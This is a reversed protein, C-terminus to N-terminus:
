ECSTSFKDTLIEANQLEHYSLEPIVKLSHLSFIMLPENSLLQFVSVTSFLVGTFLCGCLQISGYVCLVCVCACM